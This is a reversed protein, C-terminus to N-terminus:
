EEDKQTQPRSEHLSVYYYRGDKLAFKIYMKKKLKFSWWSFAFLEKGMTTKEYSKQPPRTGAYDKPTIEDLLEAILDWVDNSDGINLDNLEGVAKAFNAFLGYCNKLSEIAEKIRKLLERDSPRKSHM